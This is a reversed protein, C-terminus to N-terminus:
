PGSYLELSTARAVSSAVFGTAIILLRDYRTWADNVRRFFILAHFDSVNEHKFQGGRAIRLRPALQLTQGQVNIGFHVMGIRWVFRRGAADAGHVDFHLTIFAKGAYKTGDIAMLGKDDAIIQAFKQDPAVRQSRFVEVIEHQPEVSM